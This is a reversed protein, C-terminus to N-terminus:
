GGTTATPSPKGNRTPSLSFFREAVEFFEAVSLEELDAGIAAPFQEIMDCLADGEGNQAKALLRLYKAAESLPLAKCRVVKGTPLALEVADYSEYFAQSNSQDDAM